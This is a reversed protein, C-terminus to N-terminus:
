KLMLTLQRNTKLLDASIRITNVADVAEHESLNWVLARGEQTALTHVTVDDFGM